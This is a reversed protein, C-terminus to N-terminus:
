LLKLLRRANGSLVADRDSESLGATSVKRVAPAAYQIGMGTGFLVRASGIAECLLRTAEPGHLHSIEFCLNPCARAVRTLLVRDSYGMGSVLLTVKPYRAALPRVATAPSERFGTSGSLRLTLIVPVEAQQAAEMLPDLIEADTIAYAHHSPFLRLARFGLDLCRKAEAVARVPDPHPNVVCAGIFRDPFRQTVAAIQDNGLTTNDLLAATATILASEIGFQDMKRLYEAPEWIGPTRVPWRGYIGNVDIAM